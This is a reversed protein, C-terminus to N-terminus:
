ELLITVPKGARAKDAADVVFQKRGARVALTDRDRLVEFHRDALEHDAEALAPVRASDRTPRGGLYAELVVVVVHIAVPNPPTPTTSGAM